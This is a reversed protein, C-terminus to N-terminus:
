YHIFTSVFLSDCAKYNESTIADRRLYDGSTVTYFENNDLKDNKSQISVYLKLFDPNEYLSYMTSWRGHLHIFTPKMVNLVYEQLALKGEPIKLRIEKNCLGVADYIKIKSYYLSAGVDPLLFSANELQLIEAYSNFRDPFSTKVLDFPVTPNKCFQKTRINFHYSSYVVFGICIILGAIQSARGKMKIHLLIFLNSFILLYSLVIFPTAFRLEGMWDSPLIFFISLSILFLIHIYRYENSAKLKPILAIISFIFLFILPIITWKGGMSFGLYRIKDLLNEHSPSQDFKIYYTNPLWDHFYFYRFILFIGVLAITTLIYSFIWKAKSRNFLLLLSFAISFIIGDPRTIAIAFTIISLFVIKRVSLQKFISLSYWALVLILCVYLANELGSNTWIVFPSNVALLLNTGLGPLIKKTVKKSISLILVFSIFVLIASLIKPTLYPDFLGVWHFFALFLTWSFNSFGEVPKEGPWSVLGNGNALNRAYAFSIGADDVIWNKLAFSFCAYICFPIFVWASYKLFTKL